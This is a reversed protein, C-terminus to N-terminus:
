ASARSAAPRSLRDWAARTDTEARHLHRWPRKIRHHELRGLLREVGAADLGYGAIWRDCNKLPHRREIVRLMDLLDFEAPRTGVISHPFRCAHAMDIAHFVPQRRPPM